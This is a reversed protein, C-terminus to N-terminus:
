VAQGVLANANLPGPGKKVVIDLKPAIGILEDRLRFSSGLIGGPIRNSTQDDFLVSDFEIPLYFGESDSHCLPHSSLMSLERRLMPDKASDIGPPTPRPSWHRDYQVYAYFRRLHHLYSYPYGTQAARSRPAIAIPEVHQPLGAEELVQNVGAFSKRLWEAGEPDNQTLDALMGVIVALGM